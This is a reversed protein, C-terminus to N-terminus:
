KFLHRIFMREVRKGRLREEMLDKCLTAYITRVGLRGLVAKCNDEDTNTKICANILKQVTRKLNRRDKKYQGRTSFKDGDNLEFFEM